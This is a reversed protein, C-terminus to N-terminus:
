KWSRLPFKLWPMAWPFSSDRIRTEDLCGSIQDLDASAGQGRSRRQIFHSGHFLFVLGAWQSPQEGEREHQKNSDVSQDGRQLLPYQPGIGATSKVGSARFISEFAEVAEIQELGKVHAKGSDPPAIRKMGPPVVRDSAGFAFQFAIFGSSVSGGGDMQSSDVSKSGNKLCATSRAPSEWWGKNTDTVISVEYESGNAMSSSIWRGFSGM